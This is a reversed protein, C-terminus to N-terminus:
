GPSAPPPLPGQANHTASPKYRSVLLSATVAGAWLWVQKNLHAPLSLQLMLSGIGGLAVMASTASTRGKLFLRVLAIAPTCILLFWAILGTIGADYFMITPTSHPEVQYQQLFELTGHPLWKSIDPLIEFLHLFSAIRGATTSGTKDSFRNLVLTSEERLTGYSVLIAVAVLLLLLFSKGKGHSKTFFPVLICLAGLGGFVLLGSRSQIRLLIFTAAASAVLCLGTRILRFPLALPLIAPMLYYIQYNQNTTIAPRSILNGGSLYLDVELPFFAPYWQKLAIVCIIAYITGVFLFVKAVEDTGRSNNIAAYGILFICVTNAVILMKDDAFGYFNYQPGRYVFHPITFYGIGISIIFLYLLACTKFPPITKEWGYKILLILLYLPALANVRFTSGKPLFYAFATEFLICAFFIMGLSIGKRTDDASSDIQAAPQM